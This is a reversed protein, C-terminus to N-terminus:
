VVVKVFPVYMTFTITQGNPDVNMSVSQVGNLPKDDVFVKTNVGALTHTDLIVRVRQEVPPLTDSNKDTVAVESVTPTKM